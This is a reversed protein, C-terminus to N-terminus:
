DTDAYLAFGKARRRRQLWADIEEGRIVWPKAVDLKAVIQRVFRDVLWYHPRQGLYDTLIATALSKPGAGEYGWEFGPGRDWTGPPLVGPLPHREGEGDQVFVILPESTRYGDRYGRYTKQKSTM